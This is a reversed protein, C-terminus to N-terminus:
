HRAHQLENPQTWIALKQILVKFAPDVFDLKKSFPKYPIREKARGEWLM